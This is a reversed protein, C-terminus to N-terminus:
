NLQQENWLNVSKSHVVDLIKLHKGDEDGIADKLGCFLLFDIDVNILSNVGQEFSTKQGWPTHSEQLCGKYNKEPCFPWSLILPVSFGTHRNGIFYSCKLTLSM